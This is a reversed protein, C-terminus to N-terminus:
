EDASVSSIWCMGAFRRQRRIHFGEARLGNLRSWLIVEPETMARRLTQARYATATYPPM